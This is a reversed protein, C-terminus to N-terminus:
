ITVLGTDVNAGPRSPPPPAIPPLQKKQLWLLAKWQLFLDLPEKPNVWFSLTKIDSYEIIILTRNESTPNEATLFDFLPACHKVIFM